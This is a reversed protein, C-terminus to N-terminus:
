SVASDLVLFKIKAETELEAVFMTIISLVWGRQAKTKKAM